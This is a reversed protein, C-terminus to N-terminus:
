LACPAARRPCSPTRPSRASSRRAPSPSASRTGACRRPWTSASATSTTSRWGGAGAPSVAEECCDMACHHAVRPQRRGMCPLEAPAVAGGRRSRSCRVATGQGRWVPMRALLNPSGCMRLSDVIMRQTVPQNGSVTNGCGSYNLLQVYRSTDTMYYTPSAIGRWSLLYPDDDGGAGARRRGHSAHGAHACLAVLRLSKCVGDARLRAHQTHRALVAPQSGLLLGAIASAWPPLLAGGCSGGAQRDPLVPHPGPPRPAGEATHNYVVDLIVEIGAGHLARVLEKFERAAAAPGAGGSTFRAMPAFFSLHSYGWVNVMHNRPNRSRQFELEDYEFVPLLEVANVGLEVLHDVQARACM